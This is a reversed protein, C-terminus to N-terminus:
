KSLKVIRELYKAMIDVEINVDDGVKLTHFNTNDWTYPIIGVSFDTDNANIVTLSIGNVTVSGKEVLYKALSKKIEFTFLRSNGEDKISKVQAVDDVHGQVIHGEFLGEPGVPMELNVTDGAEVKGLNTRKETEPMIDASFLSETKNTVTLCVGNVAVSASKKLKKLFHKPANFSYTAGKKNALKGTHSIIGTFM